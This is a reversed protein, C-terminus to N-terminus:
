AESIESEVNIDTWEEGRGGLNGQLGSVRINMQDAHRRLGGTVSREHRLEIFLELLQLNLILNANNAATHNGGLIILKQELVASQCDEAWSRLDGRSCLFNEIDNVVFKGVLLAM